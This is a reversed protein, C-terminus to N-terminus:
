SNEPFLLALTLLKAQFAIPRPSEGLLIVTLRRGTIRTPPAAMLIGFLIGKVKSYGVGPSPSHTFIPISSAPLYNVPLPHCTCNEGLLITACKHWYYPKQWSVAFLNSKKEFIRTYELYKYYKQLRLLHSVFVFLLIFFNICM